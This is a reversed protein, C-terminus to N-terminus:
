RATLLSRIACPLTDLLIAEGPRAADYVLPEQAEDGLKDPEHTSVCAEHLRGDRSRFQFFVKYVTQDNIKTSTAVKRVVQGTTLVGNQVLHRAQRYRRLAFMLMALGIAPFIAILLAVHLGFPARGMGELHSTGPDRALYLVTVPSGEVDGSDTDFSIGEFSAAGVQYRYAYEYIRQKNSSAGTPSKAVLRGETRPNHSSFVFPSTFDVSSAFVLFFLIGGFFFPIGFWAMPHSFFIGRKLSATLPRPETM